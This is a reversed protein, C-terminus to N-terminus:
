PNMVALDAAYRGSRRVGPWRRNDLPATIPKRQNNPNRRGDIQTGIAEIRM